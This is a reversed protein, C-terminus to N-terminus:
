KEYPSGLERPSQGGDGLGLDSGRIKECKGRREVERGM